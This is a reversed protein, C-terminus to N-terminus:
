KRASLVVVQGAPDRLIVERTGYFTERVPSAVDGPLLRALFPDLADVELYLNTSGAHAPRAVAPLDAATSATSQLMLEASADGGDAGDAGGHVLIVFGLGAGHPVEVTRRFGLREEWFPLVAEIADFQLVATIKSVRV